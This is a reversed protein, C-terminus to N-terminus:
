LRKRLCRRYRDLHVPVYAGIARIKDLETKANVTLDRAKAAISDDVIVQPDHLSTGWRSVDTWDTFVRHAASGSDTSPGYNVVIRPVLNIVSPSMPEKHIPKLDRLEWTYTNGNIQPQLDSHNFTISSAKWGSPVSLSYRSAIQPLSDQFEWQDQFFLPNDESVVTYGFVYGIDVDDRGDIIKVRGEDYVDDPDSIADIVTKKDYHKVTGDPRIMWASIDRVKGESVLYFATAMAWRRGDRTLIKFAWNETSVLKNDGEVSVQQENLLVVGPVDKDYAPPTVSAAQRLWAPADDAFTSPAALALLTLLIFRVSNNQILTIM